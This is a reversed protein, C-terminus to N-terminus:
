FVILKYLYIFFNIAFRFSLPQASFLLLFLHHVTFFISSNVPFLLTARSSAATSWRRCSRRQSRPNLETPVLLRARVLPARLRRHTSPSRSSSRRPSQCVRPKTIPARIDGAFSASLTQVSVLPYHNRSDICSYPVNCIHDLCITWYKSHKYLFQYRIRKLPNWLM